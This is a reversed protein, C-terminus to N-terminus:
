GAFEALAKAERRLEQEVGRRLPEFPELEVRGGELRWTGAVFGDVLFVPDVMGGRIVTRRREDSVVRTRDAHSLILNDFPPLLRPPAPTDGSPLPARLVDVLQRGREDRFRRLPLSAIVPAVDAVRLGSWAAVDAVTAPGFARLYRRVLPAPAASGLERGLWAEAAVYRPQPAFAWDDGTPAHLFPAAMRVRWWEDQGGLLAHMQRASRPEAAYELARATLEDVGGINSGRLAPLFQVYDRASVLHLTGRMLTAKVVSRRRLARTLEARRFGDLRTWLGVYPARKEQAQLGAVRELAAAVPLRERQLLLQRALLARNLERLTLVRESV